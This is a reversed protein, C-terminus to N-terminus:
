EKNDPAAGPLCFLKRYDSPTLGFYKSFTESFKSANEYGLMGAIDIIRANTSMLLETLPTTYLRQLLASERDKSLLTASFLTMFSLGFITIAPALRSTKLSLFLFIKNFQM